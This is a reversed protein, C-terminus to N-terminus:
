RSSTLSTPFTYSCMGAVLTLHSSAKLWEDRILDVGFPIWEDAAPYVLALRDIPKGAGELLDLAATVVGPSRGLSAILVNSM